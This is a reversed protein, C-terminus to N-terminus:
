LPLHGLARRRLFGRLLGSLFSRLALLTGGLVEVAEINRLAKLERVPEDLLVVGLLFDGRLVLAKLTTQLSKGQLPADLLVRLHLRPEHVDLRGVLDWLM